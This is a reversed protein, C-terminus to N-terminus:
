FTVAGGKCNENQNRKYNSINASFLHVLFRLHVSKPLFKLNFGGWDARGWGLCYMVDNRIM